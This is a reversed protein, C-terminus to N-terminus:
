AGNERNQVKPGALEAAVIEVNRKWIQVVMRGINCRQMEWLERLEGPDEPEQSEHSGQSEQSHPEQSRARTVEKVGWVGMVERVGSEQSGHSKSKTIVGHSWPEKVGKVGDQSRRSWSEM